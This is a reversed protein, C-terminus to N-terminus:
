TAASVPQALRTLSASALDNIIDLFDTSMDSAFREPDDSGLVLLGFPGGSDPARLAVIALSAPPADLWAAPAQDTLPGCYPTQLSQAYERVAETVGETYAGDPLGPLDWLRLAISPLEFLESLSSVIHAPLQGAQPEALMRCCWGMLTQNIKQNGTANRILGALKWELDKAKARLTLIQREGLSIARAEHPHPVQMSAFLDAHEQFFDPHEALFRAVDEASLSAASM